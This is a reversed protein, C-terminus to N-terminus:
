NLTAFLIWWVIPVSEVWFSAFYKSQNKVSLIISIILLVSFLSFSIIYSSTTTNKLLELVICLGLGMMGVIKSNRIGIRQPITNLYMSDYQMDRIDFPIILALVILGRQFFTIWVDYGILVDAAIVPVIVTVGAWVVAVVFIKIGSLMRLNKHHYFPIAYLLTLLAFGLSFLLTQLKMKFIVILLLLFCIASFIQIIKLNRALSRHRLGALKSYKVFNYGTITGLFVFAWYENPLILGFKKQTIAVFAMVSLAVHISSDIYFRFLKQYIKM